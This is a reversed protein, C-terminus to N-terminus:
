PTNVTQSVIGQWQFSAALTNDTYLRCDWLGSDDHPTVLCVICTGPPVPRLFKANRIGETRRDTGTAQSITIEAMLIQVVAPLVPHGPFHGEFGVFDSGPRYQRRFGRMGNEDIPTIPTACAALARRLVSM